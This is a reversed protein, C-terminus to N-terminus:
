TTRLMKVRTVFDQKNRVDLETRPDLGYSSYVDELIKMEIVHAGSSLIAELGKAFVDIKEVVEDQKVSYHSELHKYIILAAEDGFIQRLVRDVAKSVKEEYKTKRQTLANM